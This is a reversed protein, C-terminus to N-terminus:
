TRRGKVSIKKEEQIVLFESLMVTVVSLILFIFAVPILLKGPWLRPLSGPDGKNEMSEFADYFFDAGYYVILLAFPLTFIFGGIINIWAQTTRSFGDYLVDVRVHGNDRLTYGLGLLFVASFFHWELEQMGVGGLWSVHANFWDIAAIWQFHRFVDFVVYRVLVDIFINAVMLLLAAVCLYGSVDIIKHLIHLVTKIITM